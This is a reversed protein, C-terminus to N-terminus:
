VFNENFHAMKIATIAAEVGKNGLKGGSRDLAQQENDDTLVCFVAPTQTLINCDKIGQAVAESVFDFHPTEGRIISGVSIVANFINHNTLKHTAFILEFSGPVHYIKINEKKINLSSFTDLIGQLLNNTIHSNWESVVIGFRYNEAHITPDLNFESYNVTAM